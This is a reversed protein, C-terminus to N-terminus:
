SWAGRMAELKARDEAAMPFEPRPGAVELLERADIAHLLLKGNHVTPEGWGGRAGTEIVKGRTPLEVSTSEWTIEVEGWDNPDGDGIKLLRGPDLGLWHCIRMERRLVQDRWDALKPDSKPTLPRSM